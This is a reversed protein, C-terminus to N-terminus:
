KHIFDIITKYTDYYNKSNYSVNMIKHLNEIHTIMLWKMPQYVITLTYNIHLNRIKISYDHNNEILIYSHQIKIFNLLNSFHQYFDKTIVTIIIYENLILTKNRKKNWIPIYDPDILKCFMNLQKYKILKILMALEKGHKILKM